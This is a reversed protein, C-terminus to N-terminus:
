DINKEDAIKKELRAIEERLEKLRIEDPKLCARPHEKLFQILMRQLHSKLLPDGVRAIMNEALSMDYTERENEFDSLFSVLAGIRKQAYAGMFGNNLFFDNKLIDCVNAAFPNVLCSVHNNHFVSGDKLYLVHDKPIDSLIFPSHTVLIINLSCDSPIDVAKILRLLKFIFTRQYEPHFCLEVEDFVVNIGRYKPRSEDITRLNLIHYIAATTTFIFQREGSSLHSFPMESNTDDKKLMIKSQFFSPPMRKIIDKVSYRKKYKSKLGKEYNSFTFTGTLSAHKIINDYNFIFGLTSNIKLSIHSKDDKVEKALNRFLIEPISGTTMSLAFGIDSIQRFRRYAPYKGAILLVKVVIYLMAVCILGDERSLFESLGFKNLIISSPSGKLRCAKKFEGVIRHYKVEEDENEIADPFLRLIKQKNLTYDIRALNYGDLLQYTIEDKSSDVHNMENEYEKLKDLYILLSAIRFRTLEVENNMDIVGDDRFPNLNIPCMYGDNKHFLSSVWSNCRDEIWNKSKPRYRICSENSYDSSIYAHMSYNTVVTYFFLSAIKNIEQDSLNDCVEGKSFIHPANEGFLYTNKDYTLAMARDRCQLIAKKGYIYYELDAYIGCVYRLPHDRMDNTTRYLLAGFNNVIRFIIDLLSTKGAGNEGVIAQITINNGYLSSNIDTTFCFEVPQDTIALNKLVSKSTNPSIILKTIVFSISPLPQM